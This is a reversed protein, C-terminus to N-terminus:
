VVPRLEIRQSHRKRVSRSQVAHDAVDHLGLRAQRGQKVSFDVGAIDAGQGIHRRLTKGSVIAPSERVGRQVFFFDDGRHCVAGIKERVGGEGLGAAGGAGAAGVKRVVRKGCPGGDRAARPCGGAVPAFPVLGVGGPGTGETREGSRKFM